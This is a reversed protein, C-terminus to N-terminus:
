WDALVGMDQGGGHQFIVRKGTKDDILIAINGIGCQHAALWAVHDIVGSEATVNGRLLHVADHERLDRAHHLATLSIKGLLSGLHDPLLVDEGLCHQLVLQLVDVLLEILQELCSDGFVHTHIQSHDSELNHDVHM